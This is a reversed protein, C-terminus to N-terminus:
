FLSVTQLHIYDVKQLNGDTYAMYWETAIVVNLRWFRKSAYPKFASIGEPFSVYGHFIGDKRTFVM